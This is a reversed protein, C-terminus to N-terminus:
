WAPRATTTGSGNLRATLTALRNYLSDIQRQLAPVDIKTVTNRTQGTDITYSQVGATVLAAVADEYAVILTETATIRAQLFDSNM